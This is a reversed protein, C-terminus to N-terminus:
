YTAKDSTILQTYVYASTIREQRQKVSYRPWGQEERWLFVAKRRNKVTMCVM